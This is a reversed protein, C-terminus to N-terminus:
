SILWRGNEQVLEGDCFLRGGSRLDKVIDWHLASVNVGGAFSYGAGLALHVTGAMKEDFLTNNLHRTIGDNCGIGVEGLRRSGEDTDLADLLAEEGRHASADVVLGERFVLRIGEVITGDRETPFDGFTIEGEASDELPCFFFEGGPLNVRGEDVHAQRGALGVTLDTEAAVIRVEDAASVREALRAMRRAEEDWDRLVAAYLFDEFEATAMGAEQALAPCPFQCGVWPIEMSMSRRYFPQAAKRLLTQKEIPLESGDRANEPADLTIRADMQEVAYLDIPPLQGVLEDPAEAAWEPSGPWLSSSAIRLIPYAGRRAILRVIEELLPKALPTSRVLVQWGPRVDLSREVILRAYEQTRADGSLDAV